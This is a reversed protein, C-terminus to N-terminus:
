STESGSIKLRNRLWSSRPHSPLIGPDLLASVLANWLIYHLAPALILLSCSLCLAQQMHEPVELSPSLHRGLQRQCLLFWLSSLWMSCAHFPRSNALFVIVCLLPSAAAEFVPDWGSWSSIGAQWWVAPCGFRALSSQLRWFPKARWWRSPVLAALQPWRVRCTWWTLLFM